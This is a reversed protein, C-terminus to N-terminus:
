GSATWFSEGLSMGVRVKSRTEGYIEEVRSRLGERERMVEFLVKRDVSDFATKLDLFTAVM